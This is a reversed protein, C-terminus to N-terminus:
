ARSVHCTTVGSVAALSSCPPFCTLLGEFRRVELLFAASGENATLVDEMLGGFSFPGPRPLTCSGACRRPWLGSSWFATVRSWLPVAGGGLDGRLVPPPGLTKCRGEIHMCVGQADFCVHPGPLPLYVCLFLLPPLCLPPPGQCAALTDMCLFLLPPLSEYNCSEKEKRSLQPPAQVCSSHGQM